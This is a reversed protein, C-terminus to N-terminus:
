NNTLILSWSWSHDQSPGSPCFVEAVPDHRSQTTNLGEMSITVADTLGGTAELHQSIDTWMELVAATRSASTLSLDVLNSVSQATKHRNAGGCTIRSIGCARIWTPGSTVLDCNESEDPAPHGSTSQFRTHLWAPSLLPWLLQNCLQWNAATPFVHPHLPLLRDSYRTQGTRQHWHMTFVRCVRHLQVFLSSGRDTELLRSMSQTAATIQPPDRQLDQQRGLLGSCYTQFGRVGHSTPPESYRLSVALQSWTWCPGTLWLSAAMPLYIHLSNPDSGTVVINGAIDQKYRHPQVTWYVNFLM